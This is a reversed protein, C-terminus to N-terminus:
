SETPERRARLSTRLDTLTRWGLALGSLLLTVGFVQSVVPLADERRDVALVEISASRVSDGTAVTYNYEGAPAGGPALTLTVSATENPGVTQETSDVVEGDFALAVPATATVNGTNRVSAIVEIDDDAWVTEPSDLGSIQHAPRDVITTTQEFRQDGVTVVTSRRGTENPAAFSAVVDRGEDPGLEVTAQFPSDATEWDPEVTVTTSDPEDGPNVLTVRAEVREKAAVAASVNTDVVSLGSANGTPTGGRDTLWDHHGEIGLRVRSDVSDGGLPDTIVTVAGTVEGSFANVRWRETGNEAGLALVEGETTGAYLTEGATTPALLTQNQELRWRESGTSANLATVTSAASTVPSQGVLYVSASSENGGSAGVVPPYFQAAEERYRLSEEGSEPALGYLFERAGTVYVMSDGTVNATDDHALPKSGNLVVPPSMGGSVVSDFRWRTEGTEPDLAYLASNGAVLLSDAEPDVNPVGSSYFTEDDDTKQWVTEGNAVDHASVVGDLGGVYVVGDLVTPAGAVSTSTGVRWRREGTTADLAVLEEGDSFYVSGNVVSLRTSTSYFIDYHSSNGTINTYSWQRDGTLADVAYVGSVSRVYVTGNAVIPTRLRDNLETTWLTEGSKGALAKLTGARTGAYVTTGWPIGTPEQSEWEAPGVAIERDLGSDFTTVRSEPASEAELFPLGFVLVAVAGAVLVLSVAGLAAHAWLWRDRSQEWAPGRLDVDFYGDWLQAGGASDCGYVLRHRIDEADVLTLETGGITAAEGDELRPSVVRDVQGTPPPEYRFRALRGPPLVLLRRKRGNRTCVVTDGEVATEWGALSWLERVFSRFDEHDLTQLQDAFASTPITPM